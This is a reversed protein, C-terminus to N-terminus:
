TRIYYPGDQESLKVSIDKVRYLQCNILDAAALDFLAVNFGNEGYSSKYAIGDFGKLKLTEAIIQTPVYETSEDGREVPESFADNIESWVIKEIDDPALDPELFALNGIERGSCDALRVDRLVRFQAVSVYSGILPRVELAATEEKTALYLCAIGKPNARGDSVKETIPKMREPSYPAAIEFSAGNQEQMRWHNGLQARWLLFGAKMTRSRSASTAAVLTLFEEQEPTRAYRFQQQVSRAFDRYSRASKFTM